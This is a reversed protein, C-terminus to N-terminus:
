VIVTTFRETDMATKMAHWFSTSTSRVTLCSSQWMHDKLCFWYLMLFIFKNLLETTVWLKGHFFFTFFSSLVILLANSSSSDEQKFTTRQLSAELARWNVLLFPYRVCRHKLLKDCFISLTQICLTCCESNNQVCMVTLAHHLIPYWLFILIQLTPNYYDWLLHNLVPKKKTTTTGHMHIINYWANNIKSVHKVYCCAINM